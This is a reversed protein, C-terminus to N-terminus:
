KLSSKPHKRTLLSYFHELWHVLKAISHARAAPRRTFFARVLAVRRYLRSVARIRFSSQEYARQFSRRRWSLGDALDRWSNLHASDCLPCHLRALRHRHPSCPERSIRATRNRRCRSRTENIKDRQRLAHVTRGPREHHPRVLSEDKLRSHNAHSFAHITGGSHRQM